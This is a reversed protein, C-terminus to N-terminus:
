VPAISASIFQWECNEAHADYGLGHHLFFHQCDRVVNTQEAHEANHDQEHDKGLHQLTPSSVVNRDSVTYLRM